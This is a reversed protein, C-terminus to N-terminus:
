EWFWQHNAEEPGSTCYVALGAKPDVALATRTDVALHGEGPNHAFKAVMNCGDPDGAHTWILQAKTDAAPDGMKMHLKGGHKDGESPYFGNPMKACMPTTTPGEPLREGIDPITWKDASAKPKLVAWPREHGSVMEKADSVSLALEPNSVPIIYFSKGAMRNNYRWRADLPMTIPRAQNVRSEQGM